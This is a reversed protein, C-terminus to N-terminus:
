EPGHATPVPRRRRARLRARILQRGGPRQLVNSPEAMKRVRTEFALESKYDANQAFTAGKSELMKIFVEVLDEDFQSGAAKRLEGMAEEPSMPEGFSERRLM